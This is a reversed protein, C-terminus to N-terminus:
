AKAIKSPNHPAIQGDKKQMHQRRDGSQGAAARAGHDGFGHEDFVLQQNEIM